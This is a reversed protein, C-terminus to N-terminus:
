ILSIYTAITKAFDLVLGGYTKIKEYRAQAKKEDKSQLASKLANIDAKIDDLRDDDDKHLQSLLKDVEDNFNQLGINTISHNNDGVLVTGTSNNNITINNGQKTSMAEIDNLYTEVIKFLNPRINIVEKIQTKLNEFNFNRELVVPNLYILDRLRQDSIFSEEKRFHSLCNKLFGQLHQAVDSKKHLGFKDKTLRICSKM